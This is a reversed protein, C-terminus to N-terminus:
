PTFLKRRLAQARNDRKRSFSQVRSDHSQARRASAIEETQARTVGYASKRAPTLQIDEKRMLRGSVREWKTFKELESANFSGMLESETNYGRPLRGTNVFEQISLYRDEAKLNYLRRHFERLTECDEASRGFRYGDKKNKLVLEVFLGNKVMKSVRWNEPDPNLLRNYEMMSREKFHEFRCERQLYPM